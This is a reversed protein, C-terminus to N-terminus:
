KANSPGGPGELQKQLSLDGVVLGDAEIVHADWQEPPADMEFNWVKQHSPLTFRSVSSIPQFTGGPGM